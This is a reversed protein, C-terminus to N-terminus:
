AGAQEKAQLAKLLASLPLPVAARTFPVTTAFVVQNESEALVKDALITVLCFGIQSLLRIEYEDFWKTLQEISNCGCGYHLVTSKLKLRPFEVYYPVPIDTRSPNSWAASLGPRWPGRGESDQIRFVTRSGAEAEELRKILSAHDTM